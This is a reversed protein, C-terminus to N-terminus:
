ARANRIRFEPAPPKTPKWEAPGSRVAVGAVADGAHHGAVKTGVLAGRRGDQERGAAGRGSRRAFDDVGACNWIRSRDSGLNGAYVAAGAVVPHGPDARLCETWEAPVGPVPDAPDGRIGRRYGATRRDAGAGYVRCAGESGAAGAIRGARNAAVNARAGEIRARADPQRPERVVGAARM